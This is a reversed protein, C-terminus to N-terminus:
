GIDLLPSRTTIPVPVAAEVTANPKQIPLDQIFVLVRSSNQAIMANIGNAHTPHELAWRLEDEEEMAGALM